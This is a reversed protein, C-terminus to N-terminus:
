ASKGAPAIPGGRTIVFLGRETLVVSASPDLGGDWEVLERRQLAFVTKAGFDTPGAVYRLRVRRARGAAWKIAVLANRQPDTLSDWTNRAGDVGSRIDRMRADYDALAQLHGEAQMFARFEADRRAMEGDFQQIFEYEDARGRM